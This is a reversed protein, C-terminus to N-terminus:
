ARGAYASQVASWPGPDPEVGESTDEEVYQARQEDLLEILGKRGNSQQPRISSQQRGNERERPDYIGAWGHAAAHELLRGPPWDDDSHRAIDELFRKYASASNPRNKAKRNGLFDKWSQEEAWEPKPFPNKRKPSVPPSDSSGEPESSPLPNSSIDNPSGNRTVNRTERKRERYRSMRQAATPDRRQEM